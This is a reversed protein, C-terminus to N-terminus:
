KMVQAYLSGTIIVRQQPKIMTQNINRDLYLTISQCRPIHMQTAKHIVGLKATDHAMDQYITLRKMFTTIGSRGYLPDRLDRSYHILPRLRGNGTVAFFSIEM